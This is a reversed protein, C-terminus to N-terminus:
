LPIHGGMIVVGGVILASIWIALIILGFIGAVFPIVKLIDIIRELIRM